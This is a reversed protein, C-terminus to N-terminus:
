VQCVCVCGGEEEEEEEEEDDDDDDDDHCVACLVAANCGFGPGVMIESIVLRHRIKELASARSGTIVSGRCQALALLPRVTM